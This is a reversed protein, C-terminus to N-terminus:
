YGVSVVVFAGLGSGTFSKSFNAAQLSIGANIEIIRANVGFAVQNKFVRDTYETSLSTRIVNALNLNVAFLYEPYFKANEVFPHSVGFGLGGKLKIIDAFANVEITGGLKLPRNVYYKVNEQVVSDSSSIEADNITQITSKYDIEFEYQEMFTLKGPVIPIRANVNILYKEYFPLQVTGGLDFGMCNFLRGVASADFDHYDVATYVKPNVLANFMINGDTDNEFTITGLDGTVSALPIFFTPKVHVFFEEINFGVDINFNYFIDLDNYLQMKCTDGASYGEGVLDFLEKSINLRENVEVGTNIGLFFNALRLNFGFTPNTNQTMVFGNKPM